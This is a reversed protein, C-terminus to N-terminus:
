KKRKLLAPKLRVEDLPIPQLGLIDLLKKHEKKKNMLEFPTQDDFLERVVSNIHRMILHIDEEELTHFSTGKPLIQRMLVHNKEIRGKQWSAQPDCYFVRTRRAGNETFELNHVGKFETGNDTLIVPFLKRFLDLGLLLTLKDFVAHVSKQSKDPLLFILMFNTERFLLTLLVNGSHRAGIVTDMEVVPLRPNQEIYTSFDTYTRGKRYQYDMKMLVEHPRNQRQRYRVKRPLDINRVHFANQDIYNYITKESLGIEDSHTAFIHHISQGKNVLPMLLDNLEMLREPNTRIGARANHLQKTYEAHARHATYYAHNKKCKKEDPCGTCVYPPKDLADCHSSVFQPCLQNCNFETCDKCRHCCSYKTEQDCLNRRICSRYNICPNDSYRFGYVFCRHNKVERSITSPSRELRRAIYSFTMDHVLYREIIARDSLTLHKGM